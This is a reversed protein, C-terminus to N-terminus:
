AARNTKILNPFEATQKALQVIQNIYFFASMITAATFFKTVSLHMKGYIERFANVIAIVIHM